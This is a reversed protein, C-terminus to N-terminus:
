VSKKIFTQWKEKVIFNLGFSVIFPSTIVAFLMRSVEFHFKGARGSFLPRYDLSAHMYGQNFDTVSNASSIFSALHMKLIVAIM